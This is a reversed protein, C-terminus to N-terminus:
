DEIREYQALVKFHNAWDTLTWDPAHNMCHNRGQMVVWQGLAQRDGKSRPTVFRKEDKALHRNIRAVIARKSVTFQIEKTKM